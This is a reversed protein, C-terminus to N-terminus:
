GGDKLAEVVQRTTKLEKASMRVERSLLSLAELLEPNELTALYAYTEAVLADYQQLEGSDLYVGALDLSCLAFEFPDGLDRLGNRARTMLRPGHRDYGLQWAIRGMQWYVLMKSVSKPRGALYSKVDELMVYSQRLARPMPCCDSLIKSVAHLAAYFVRQGRKTTRNAKALSAAQAAYVLGTKESEFRYAVVSRIILAAALTITDAETTIATEAEQIAKADGKAFLLWAYATHLRARISSRIPKKALKFAADYLKEAEAFAGVDKATSGRVIRALVCFSRREEASKYAGPRGGVFIRTDALAVVPETMEYAKQPEHVAIEDCRALYRKLFPVNWYADSALIRDPNQTARGVRVTTM